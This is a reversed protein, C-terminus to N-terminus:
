WISGLIYVCVKRSGACDFHVEANWLLWKTRFNVPFIGRGLGTSWVKHSRACDIHVEVNVPFIFITFPRLGSHAGQDLVAKVKVRVEWHPCVTQPFIAL